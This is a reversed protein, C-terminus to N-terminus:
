GERKSELLQKHEPCLGADPFLQSRILKVQTHANYLRCNERECFPNGTMHFFLAQLLMGPLVETLRPDDHGVHPDDDPEPAGFRRALYYQRSRAPASVIGPVSVVSPFGYVAVRAHYRMQLPEFSGMLQRSVVIVARERGMGGLLPAIAEMYMYGDYLVGWTRHWRAAIRRAEYELEGKIPGSEGAREDPDHVRARALRWAVTDAMEEPLRDPFLPDGVIARGKGIYKELLEAARELRVVGMDGDPVLEVTGPFPLDWKKL